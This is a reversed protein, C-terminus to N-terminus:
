FVLAADIVKAVQQAISAAPRSVADGRDGVELDPAAVNLPPLASFTLTYNFQNESMTGDVNVSHDSSIFDKPLLLQENVNSEVSLSWNPTFVKHRCLVPATQERSGRSPVVQLGYLIDSDTNSNTQRSLDVLLDGSPRRRFEPNCLESSLAKRILPWAFNMQPSSIGDLAPEDSSILYEFAIALGVMSQLDPEDGLYEHSAELWRAYSFSEGQNINLSQTAMFDALRLLLFDHASKLREVVLELFDENTHDIISYCLEDMVQESPRWGLRDMAANFCDHARFNAAAVIIRRLFDPNVQKIHPKAEDFRGKRLLAVAVAERWEDKDQHPYRRLSILFWDPDRNPIKDKSYHSTYVDITIQDISTAIGGPGRCLVTQEEYYLFLYSSDLTRHKVMSGYLRKSAEEGYDRLQQCSQAVNYLERCGLFSVIEWFLDAPMRLLPPLPKVESM